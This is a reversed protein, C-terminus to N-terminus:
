EGDILWDKPTPNGNGWEFFESKESCYRCMDGPKTYLDYVVKDWNDINNVELGDVKQLCLQFRQYFKGIYAEIPCKYIHRDKIILIGRPECTTYPQTDTEQPHTLLFKEFKDTMAEHSGYAVGNEELTNYIRDKMKLTPAYLTLNFGIYKEKMTQYLSKKMRPILIGNSIVAIDSDPLIERLRLLFKELKPNLLPEGGLIRLQFIECHKGIEEITQLSVDVDPLDDQHYLNSFHLCGKCNLNCGDAAHVELHHIIPKTADKLILWQKQYLESHEDFVIPLRYTLPSPKLLIINDVQLEKLQEIICFRSYGKRVAIIVGEIEGDRSKQATYEISYIPLQEIQEGHLKKNNDAFCVVEYKSTGSKKIQELLYGGDRCGIIAVRM